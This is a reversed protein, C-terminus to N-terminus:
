ADIFSRIAAALGSPNEWAMAHGAQGVIHVPIGHRPMDERDPDRTREGIIYAKKGAFRYFISRDTQRDGTRLSHSFRWIGPRYAPAFTPLWRPSIRALRRMLRDFGTAVFDAESDSAIQFSFARPPSPELNAESLVLGKFCAPRRAAAQLVIAGGASHGYAYVAPLGLDDLLGILIDAHAAVTYSFDAPRDSYGNGLLDLIIKRHGQLAPDSAVIPYDYSGACGLGHVFVLPTKEGPFDLYRMVADAQQVYFEKM